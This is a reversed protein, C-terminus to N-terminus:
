HAQTQSDDNCALTVDVYIGSPQFFLPLFTLCTQKPSVKNSFHPRFYGLGLLCFMDLSSTYFSPFFSNLKPLHFNSTPLKKMQNKGKTQQPVRPQCCAAPQVPLSAVVQRRAVKLHHKQFMLASIRKFFSKIEM